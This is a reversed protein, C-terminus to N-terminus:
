PYIFDIGIKSNILDLSVECGIWAPADSTLNKDIYWQRLEKLLMLMDTNARGGGTFWSNKGQEDIYDYKYKCTDLEKSLQALMTVNTAGAPAINFLISGIDNHIESDSRM